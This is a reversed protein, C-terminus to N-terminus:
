RMLATWVCCVPGMLVHSCLSQAVTVCLYRGWGEEDEHMGSSWTCRTCVCPLVYM